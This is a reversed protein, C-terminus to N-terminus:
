IVLENHIIKNKVLENLLQIIRKKIRILQNNGMNIINFFEQLDLLKSQECGALSQM